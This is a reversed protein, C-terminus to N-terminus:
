LGEGDQEKHRRTLDLFIQELDISSDALEALMFRHKVLAEALRGALGEVFSEGEVIYTAFGNRASGECEVRRVGEVQAIVAEVQDRAGSVSLRIRNHKDARVMIRDALLRGNLLIMVRDAVKEMEALIHSAVLVTKVGALSRILNRTAIIQEPDLGNTPEDLVLVKPDSVLAQALAVRQRYGRSLKGIMMKLFPELGLREAVEAVARKAEGSGLGKLRAIFTLFEQVRMGNYLPIDEPVYGILSRLGTPNELADVGCVFVSGRTPRLYGTVIRLTTTKGSGNPGLLGVVEGPEIVFSIGKLAQRPGYWKTLNQVAIATSAPTTPDINEASLANITTAM